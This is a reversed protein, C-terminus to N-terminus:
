HHLLLTIKSVIKEATLGFMQLLEQPKGSRPLDTVYVMHVLFKGYEALCSSVAEGIGGELYHDEVTLILNNCESANRELGEKDIPK